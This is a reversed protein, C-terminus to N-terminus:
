RDLADPVGALVAEAVEDVLSGTADEGQASTANVAVTVVLNDDDVIDVRLAMAADALDDDGSLRTTSFRVSEARQGWGAPAPSATEIPGVAEWVSSPQARRQADEWAQEQQDADTSTRVSVEVEVGGTSAACAARDDDVDAGADRPELEPEPVTAELLGALDLDDCVSAPITWTQALADGDDEGCGVLALSAVAVVLLQRM